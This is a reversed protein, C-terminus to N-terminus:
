HRIAPAGCSVHVSGGVFCIFSRIDIFDRPGYKALKKSLVKGLTLLRSYTLWTPGSRYNLKFSLRKAATQTVGPQLFMESKPFMLFPLLTQVPWKLLKTRGAPLSSLANSFQEFRAQPHSKGHLLEVLASSFTRKGEATKLADNLASSELKSLLNVSTFVELTRRAIEDYDESQLLNKIASENLTQEALEHANWTCEREREMYSPDEFWLPFTTEFRKVAEQFVMHDAPQGGLLERDPPLQLIRIDEGASAIELPFAAAIRKPNNEVADLFYITSHQECVALVRGLGWESRAPHRVVDGISLDM